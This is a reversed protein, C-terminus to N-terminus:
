TEKGMLTGFEDTARRIWQTKAGISSLYRVVVNMQDAEPIAGLMGWIRQLQQEQAETM